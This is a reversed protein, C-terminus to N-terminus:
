WIARITSQFPLFQDGPGYHSPPKREPEGTAVDPRAITVSVGTENTVLCSRDGIWGLTILSNLSNDGRKAIINFMPNPTLLSTPMGGRWGDEM